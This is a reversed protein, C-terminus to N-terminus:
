ILVGGVKQLLQMMKISQHEYPLLIKIISGESVEYVAFDGVNYDQVSEVIGLRQKLEETKNVVRLEDVARYKNKTGTKLYVSSLRDRVREINIKLKNAVEKMTMNEDNMFESMISIELDNLKVNKTM